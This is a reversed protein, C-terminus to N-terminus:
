KAGGASLGAAKLAFYGGILALVIPLLVFQSFKVLTDATSARQAVSERQEPPVGKLGWRALVIGNLTEVTGVLKSLADPIGKLREQESEMLAVKSALEEVEQRLDEDTM